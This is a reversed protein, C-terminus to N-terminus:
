DNGPQLKPNPQVGLYDTRGPRDRPAGKSDRPEAFVFVMPAGIEGVSAWVENTFRPAQQLSQQGAKITLGGAQASTLARLPIAINRGGFMRPRAPSVIVMVPKRGSFDVLLDKISGLKGERSSVPKGLLDTALELRAPAEPSAPVSGGERGVPSFAVSSAGASRPSSQLFRKTAAPTPESSKGNKIEPLSEWAKKSMTLALVNRKATAVVLRQPPVAKIQKRLGLWSGASLIGSRIQGTNMEVVLDKLHGARQGDRHEVKRGLLKTLRQGELRGDLERETGTTGRPTPRQAKAEFNAPRGVLWLM